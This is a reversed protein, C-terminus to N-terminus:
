SSLLSSHAQPWVPAPRVSSTLTPRLPEPIWHAQALSVTLTAQSPPGNSPYVPLDARRVMEDM